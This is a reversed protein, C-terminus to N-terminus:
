TPSIRRLYRSIDRMVSASARFHRHRLKFEISTGEPKIKIKDDSDEFLINSEPLNKIINLFKDCVVTTSGNELGEVTMESVYSMKQDTAKITLNNDELVLCVNAYVALTNRQSTFDLANSLEKLIANKQCVFKM